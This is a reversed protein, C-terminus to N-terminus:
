LPNIFGLVAEEVYGSKRANIIESDSVTFVHDNTKSNYLRHMQIGQGSITTYGLTGEFKYGSYTTLNNKENENTTYFHKNQSANYLRYVAVSEESQVGQQKSAYLYGAIGEYKFGAKKVINDGESKSITMFHHKSNPNYYRYMTVQGQLPAQGGCSYGLIGSRTHDAFEETTYLSGKDLSFMVDQKNDDVAYMLTDGTNDYIQQLAIYGMDGEYTGKSNDVSTSAFYRHAGTASNYYRKLPITGPEYQSFISTVTGNYKYNARSLQMVEAYNTTYFHRGDQATLSYLQAMPDSCSPTPISTAKAVMPAVATGAVSAATLVAAM